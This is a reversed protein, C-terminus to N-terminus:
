FDCVETFLIQGVPFFATIEEIPYNSKGYPGM